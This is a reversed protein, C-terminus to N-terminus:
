NKRNIEWAKHVPYVPMNLSASPIPIGLPIYYPKLWAITINDERFLGSLIRSSIQFNKKEGRNPSFSLIGQHKETM